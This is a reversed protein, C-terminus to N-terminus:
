PTAERLQFVNGETDVANRATFGPGPWAPAAWRGGLQELTSTVQDLSPVTFFLKIATDERATPPQTIAIQAAVATPIAHLVLQFDASAIVEHDPEAHQLQQGLVQQYFGSLRQLEKAYIVAGACAHTSLTNM